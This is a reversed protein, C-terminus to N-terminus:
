MRTADCSDFEGNKMKYVGYWCERLPTESLCYNDESLVKLKVTRRVGKPIEWLYWENVLVDKVFSRFEKSKLDKDSITEDIQIVFEQPDSPDCTVKVFKLKKEQKNM